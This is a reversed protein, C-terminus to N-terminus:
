KKLKEGETELAQRTSETVRDVAGHIVVDVEDTTQNNSRSLLNGM